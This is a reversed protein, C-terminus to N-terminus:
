SAYAEHSPTTKGKCRNLRLLRELYKMRLLRQVAKGDECSDLAADCMNMQFEIVAALEEEDLDVRM